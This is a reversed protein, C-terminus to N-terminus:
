HFIFDAVEPFQCIQPFSVAVMTRLNVLHIDCPLDRAVPKYSTVLSNGKYHDPLYIMRHLLFLNFVVLLILFLFHGSNPM